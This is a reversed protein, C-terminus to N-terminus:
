YKGFITIAPQNKNSSSCPSTINQWDDNCGLAPLNGRRSGPEFPVMRWASWAAGVHYSARCPYRRRPKKQEEVPQSFLGPSLHHMPNAPFMTGLRCKHDELANKKMKPFIVQFHRCVICPREVSPNLAVHTTALDVNRTELPMKKMKSFIVQSHRCVICARELSPNLAVHTVAHPICTTPSFSLFTYLSTSSSAISHSSPFSSPPQHRM